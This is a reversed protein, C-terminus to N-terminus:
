ELAAVLEEEEGSVAVLVMMVAVWEAEADTVILAKLGLATLCRPSLITNIQNRFAPMRDVCISVPIHRQSRTVQRDLRIPPICSPPHM